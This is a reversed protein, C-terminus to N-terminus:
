WILYYFRLYWIYHARLTEPIVKIFFKERNTYDVESM